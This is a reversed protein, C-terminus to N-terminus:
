KLAIFAVNYVDASTGAASIKLAFSKDTITNASASLAVGGTGSALNLSILLASPTYNLVQTGDIFNVTVTTATGDLTIPCYGKYVSQNASSPGDIVIQGTKAANNSELVTTGATVSM